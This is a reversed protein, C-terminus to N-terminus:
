DEAVEAIAERQELRLTKIALRAHWLDVPAMTIAAKALAKTVGHDVGLVQAAGATALLLTEREPHRRAEDHVRRTVGFSSSNTETSMSCM